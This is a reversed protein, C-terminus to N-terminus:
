FLWMYLRDKTLSGVAQTTDAPLPPPPFWWVQAYFAPPSTLARFSQSQCSGGNQPARRIAPIDWGRGGVRAWRDVSDV